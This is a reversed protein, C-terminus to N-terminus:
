EVVVEPSIKHAAERAAAAAADADVNATYSDVKQKWVTEFWKGLCLKEGALTQPYGLGGDEVSTYCTQLYPANQLWARTAAVDGSPLVISISVTQAQATFPILLAIALAAIILKKMKNRRKVM